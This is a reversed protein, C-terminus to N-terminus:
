VDGDAHNLNAPLQDVRDLTQKQLSLPSLIRYSFQIIHSGSAAEGAELLDALFPSPIFNIMSKAPTYGLEYFM